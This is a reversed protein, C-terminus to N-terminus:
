DIADPIGPKRRMRAMTQRSPLHSKDVRLRPIARGLSEAEQHPELDCTAGGDGTTDVVRQRHDVARSIESADLADRGNWCDRRVQPETIGPTFEGLHRRVEDPERNPALVRSVDDRVEFRARATAAFAHCPCYDNSAAPLRLWALRRTRPIRGPSALCWHSGSHEPARRRMQSSSAHVLAGTSDPPCNAAAYAHM